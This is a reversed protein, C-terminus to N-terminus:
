CHDKEPWVKAPPAPAPAAPEATAAAGQELEAIRRHQRALAAHAEARFAAYYGRETQWRRRWKGAGGRSLFGLLWGALAAVVVALLHRPPWALLADVIAAM